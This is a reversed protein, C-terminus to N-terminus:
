PTKETTSTDSESAVGIVGCALRQDTAASSAMDNPNQHIVVSRGLLTRTGQLTAEPIRTVYTVSGDAKADLDGLNGTVKATADASSFKFHDGASSADPASCDGMMHVHFGHKGKPLGKVDAVVEIGDTTGVFRITGAVKSGKTPILVAVAQEVPKITAADPDVAYTSAEAGTATKTTAGRTGGAYIDESPGPLGEEETATTDPAPAPPTQPQKQEDLASSPVTAPTQSSKSCAAAFLLFAISITKSV